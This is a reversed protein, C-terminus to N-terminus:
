QIRVLERREAGAANFYLRATLPNKVAFQVQLDQGPNPPIAQSPDGESFSGKPLFQTPLQIFRQYEVKDSRTNSAGALIGKIQYEADEMDLQSKQVSIHHTEAYSLAEELTFPTQSVSSSLTSLVLFLYIGPFKM